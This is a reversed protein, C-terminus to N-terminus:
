DQKFKAESETLLYLSDDELFSFFLVRVPITSIHWIAHADLVWFLPPFDLLELLSLGQLLLVVVMCKCVHPLLGIAVNAVLNYDYDFLILSLYSVHTALMLLLLARFACLVAPHQLGMTRDCCLYIAHLIVTSACFYDM